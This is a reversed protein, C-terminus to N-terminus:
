GSPRACTCTATRAPRRRPRPRARTVHVHVIAFAQSPHRAPPRPRDAVRRGPREDLVRLVGQGEARRDRRQRRHGWRRQRRRRRRRRRVSRRRVHPRRPVDRRRLRRRVDREFLALRRPLREPVVSRRLRRRADCVLRRRVPRRRVRQLRAPVLGRACRGAACVVGACPDVCAGHACPSATRVCSGTAPAAARRRRSLDPRGPLHRGPVRISACARTPDCRRRHLRVGSRAHLAARVRRQRVGRPQPLDRRRRRRRQLRQRSRRLARARAASRRAASSATRAPRSARACVGPRRHRLRRRRRRVRRRRREDRIRSTPTTARLTDEWAFYFKHTALKRPLSCTSTRSAGGGDPNFARQSYYVYGVGASGRWRRAATAAPASRPSAHDEPTVLFFGITAARTRPTAACTSCSRRAPRRTVTSCSTCIPRRRHGAPRRQVLRLRQPLARRRAVARHVHARLDPPVDRAHDARRRRRDPGVAAVPHLQQREARAVDHDRLHRAQRRRVTAAAPVPRASTASRGDHVPVRVARRPRDPSRRQVGDHVPDAHREAAHARARRRGHGRVGRGGRAPAEGRM